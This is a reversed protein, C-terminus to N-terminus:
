NKESLIRLEIQRRRRKNRQAISYQQSDNVQKNDLPKQIIHPHIATITKSFLCGM